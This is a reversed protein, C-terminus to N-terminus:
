RAALMPWFNSSGQRAIMEGLAAAWYSESGFDDRWSL